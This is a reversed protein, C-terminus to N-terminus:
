SLRSDHKGGFLKIALERNVRADEGTGTMPLRMAGFGLRSVNYGTQGLQRYEM